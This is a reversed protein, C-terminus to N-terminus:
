HTVEVRDGEIVNRDLIIEANVPLGSLIEVYRGQIQGLTIKKARAISNNVVFVFAEEQTQIISDLPIFPDVNTTDAVGIPIRVNVYTADTLSQALSDDLNYIVSYLVGDTADKSIFTPLMSISKNNILLTSPEFNSINKAIDGPVDVVIEVHQSNGTISALVTGSSVNDGVHVFIKNVTGAFPASPFMTAENVLAMNYSLRSVDLSTILGKEQIDLQKLAIQYALGSSDNSNSNTQIQLSKFSANTQALVAQFQSLSQKAQLIATDNSGGINSAELSQINNLISNVITNDLDAVAQTDVASQSTIQRLLDANEKNKDAIERQKVIVDKQTDYTDKINQYQDAAIQRAITAVSGGTYNTSIFAINTGAAIEQGEYVNINSVIGASQAIIKVVGSKEVKGQYSIEPASGLKYIQVNKPTTQNKEPEPKPSFLLNGIIMLILFVALVSFFASFPKKQTFVFTKKFIEKRKKNIFHLKALFFKRLKNFKKM